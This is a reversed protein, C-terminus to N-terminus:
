RAAIRGDPSTRAMLVEVARVLEAIQAQQAEIIRRQKQYENLLMPGLHQYFVTELQGDRGSAVLSPAVEAVEEAILGYQISGAGYHLKYRFTVPHLKMLVDSADGMDAIDDKVARSSSLTGLQGASDIVVNIANNNATTVGRIGAVFARTQDGPAGIRITAGEGAAGANSLHINFSGTTLGSGAFAGLALNSQGSTNSSLAMAGLATNSGGITGYMAQYGVAVNFNGNANEHLAESGLGANGFGGDNMLMASYGMATNFDGTLNNALASRGFASNGTGLENFTLALAGTATNADGTTNERMAHSGIATNMQGTTNTMLAEFGNATNDSGTTNSTLANAGTASNGGGGTSQSLAAYGVGTNGWSSVNSALAQAGVATNNSGDSNNILAAAGVAVNNAGTTNNNMTFSGVATNADGTGNANLANTGIGTNSDGTTNVALAGRGVGTNFNGFTNGALALYGVATNQFGTSNAPLALAGVATNEFGTTNANLATYGIGTNNIGTMTFNGALQGLFTGDTGFNHMFVGGPKVINGVAASTSNPLNINNGFSGPNACVWTAGNWQTTQGSACAVTPLLQTAALNITGTTTIPGGTLGSGTGVSTVTGSGGNDNACTWVNSGNSKAVQGNTCGQPLQFGTAISLTGSTTIPGGSLGTGSAVSTVTGGGAANACVWASGNWQPIQGTTCAVTPLLQTPALTITGTSTIPGGLLGPGTDVAEVRIDGLRNMFVAMQNRKVTDNPCYLRHNADIVQCGTTIGNDAMWTIFGCFPDSALVDDFVWPSVGPCFQARAPQTLASLVVFTVLLLSRRMM